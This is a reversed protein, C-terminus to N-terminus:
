SDLCVKSNKTFLEILLFDSDAIKFTFSDLWTHRYDFFFLYPYNFRCILTTSFRILINLM